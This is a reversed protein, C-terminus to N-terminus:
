SLGGDRLPRDLVMQTKTRHFGEREYFRHAETRVVNSRVRLTGYGREEAWRVAADLLRRGVGRGRQAEDVVLGSVEAFAPSELSERSCVQLWGAVAGDDEAVLASQNSLNLVALLRAAMEDSAVPYGLQTTLSALAAADSLTAERILM